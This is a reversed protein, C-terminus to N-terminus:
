AAESVAQRAYVPDVPEFRNVALALLALVSGVLVDFARTRITMAQGWRRM